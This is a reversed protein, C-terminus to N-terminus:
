LLVFLCRLELFIHPFLDIDHGFAVMWVQDLLKTAEDRLFFQPDYAWQQVAATQLIHRAELELVLADLVLNHECADELLYDFAKGVEVLHPEDM